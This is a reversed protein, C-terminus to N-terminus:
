YERKKNFEDKQWEQFSDIVSSWKELRSVNPPTNINNNLIGRLVMAAAIISGTITGALGIIAAFLAQPGMGWADNLLNITDRLM